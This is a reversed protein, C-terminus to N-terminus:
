ALDWDEVDEWGVLEIAVGESSEDYSLLGENNLKRLSTRFNNKHFQRNLDEWTMNIRNLSDKKDWLFCYIKSLDNMIQSLFARPPLDSFDQRVIM